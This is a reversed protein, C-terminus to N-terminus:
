RSARRLLYLYSAWVFLVAVIGIWMMVARWPMFNVTLQGLVTIMVVSCGAAILSYVLRESVTGVKEGLIWYGSLTVILGILLPMILNILLTMWITNGYKLSFLASIAFSMVLWGVSAFLAWRYPAYDIVSKQKRASRAYGIAIVIVTIAAIKAPLISLIVYQFNNDVVVTLQFISVLMSVALWLWVGLVGFVVGNYHHVLKSKARTAGDGALYGVLSPAIATFAFSILLLTLDLDEFIPGPFQRSWSFASVILGLLTLFFLGYGYYITIKQQTKQSNKKTAMIRLMRVYLGYTTYM